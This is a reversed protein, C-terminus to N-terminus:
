NPPNSHNLAVTGALAHLADKLEQPDELEAEGGLSLLWRLFPETQIVSFQRLHSGDEGVSVLTGLDNRDAWLASPYRFRVQVRLPDPEAGGKLEWPKKGAYARIDFDSPIEYDPTQPRSRNEELGEIRSVRFMRVGERDEDWGIVYWKGRQLLLGYPLVSRIQRVDRGLSHYGFNVRKRNTAATSLRRLIDRNAQSEPSVSRLIPTTTGEAGTQGVGVGFTGDDLDFSFKQFASKAADRLPFAPLEMLERLGLLAASAESETVEFHSRGDGVESVRRALPLSFDKRDLLYFDSPMGGPVRDPHRLTIGAARLEAKDREFMRRVRSRAKSDEGLGERYAPIQAWLQERSVPYRRAALFAVLDMWRQLKSISNAM